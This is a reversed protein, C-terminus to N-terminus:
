IPTNSDILKLLFINFMSHIKADRLLNLKDNRLEKVRKILFTEIKMSNLKKNKNKKRLNKTRLFM